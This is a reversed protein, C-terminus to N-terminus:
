MDRLVVAPDQQAAMMAPIWSALCALLPALVVVAVLLSPDFLAAYGEGSPVEGWEWGVALGAVYGLCAGCVGYLLAKAVFVLFVHGAGIGLARLIGIEQRRERVNAFALFGIWVTCGVVVVPVLLAAFGAREDRLRRRSAKEAALAQTAMDAARKRAEFRILVKSSFEIVQTNPLIGQIEQRMQALQAKACVCQLAMIGNVLGKKDLLEQAEALNIWVSIDDKTSREPNCKTVTFERGLVTAKHGVAIGLSRHLEYGMVMTGRPVLTLMPERPARHALPVEGRTGVLVITRRQEPWKLKQQLIPLLHRVTMIKSNTLKEVYSEPMTKRGYDDAYLDGLNQDKPLILVNFGLKKMIKRYDDELKDMAAQTEAEKAAIIQETRLDHARLLTLQAVLCGVAVLASLVGLAFNIKRYMIERTVLRWFTM